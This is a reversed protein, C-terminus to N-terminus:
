LRQALVTVVELIAYFSDYLWRARWCKHQVALCRNYIRVTTVRMSQLDTVVKVSVNM